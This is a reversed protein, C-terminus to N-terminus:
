YDAPPVRRLTILKLTSEALIETRVESQANVDVESLAHLSPRSM